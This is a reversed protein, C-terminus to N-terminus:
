FLLHYPKSLCSFHEPILWFFHFFLIVFDSNFRLLSSHATNLVPVCISYVHSFDFLIFHPFCYIHFFFSLPICIVSDRFSLNPLTNFTIFSFKGWLRSFLNIMTYEACIWIKNIKRSILLKQPSVQALFFFFDCWM